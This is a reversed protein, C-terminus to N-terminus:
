SSRSDSQTNALRSKRIANGAKLEIGEYSSRDKEEEATLEPAPLEFHGIFKLYIEVEQIRDGDVKEPVHVLIKDIFENIM